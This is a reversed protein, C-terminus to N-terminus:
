FRRRQDNFPFGGRAGDGYLARHKRLKLEEASLGDRMKPLSLCMYRLTDAFHSHKDHLPHDQYVKKKSDFEKRYNEIAAILDKCKDEDIYVRSLTSRVAEIGDMISLNPAIQYSIGLQRAKELRSLGTGLERVQIDSPAWHSKYNYPKSNIVSIYHELGKGSNHYSDIIRVTQGIVQFFVLTFEDRMGLDCATSVQFSPEWPVTTIQNNLRMKLLYQSYYAGECGANFDCLWEQMYFDESMEKREEDLAEQSIYDVTEVNNFSLFWKDSEQALNYLDWFHNSRGKPTSNFLAWGDNQALIPRLATWVGPDQMAYESFIAGFCASGRVKDVDQSGVFQLLSGNILRIKMESDNKNAILEKPIYDIIRQGDSNIGDWLAIRCQRYTPFIYFITCVKTLMQRIAIYFAVHDKGMRRSWCLLLRKYEGSELAQIVPLQYDRPVFKNLKIRTGIDIKM